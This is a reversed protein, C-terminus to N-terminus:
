EAAGGRRAAAEHHFCREPVPDYGMGGWPQCRLLRRATLWGGGFPGHRRIAELAYSSCSPEYRCSLPLVPRLIYRYIQILALMAWALPKAALRAALGVLSSTATM